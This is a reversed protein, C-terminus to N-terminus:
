FGFVDAGSTEARSPLRSFGNDEGEDINDDPIPMKYPFKMIFHKDEDKDLITPIRHKGRQVSLFHEKNHMFKHIYLEIDMEQDLQKTGEHYGKETIEKVFQDEPMGSRLLGKAETSLQWPSILAIGRASCFNRVRRLLDRKDTGMAGTTICGTTPILALYDLLLVEISYGQAEYEIVKNCISRYTWESPNVRAMKVHFGNVSMRQKVYAAMDKISLGKVDVFSKIEDYKLSQYLFQLNEYLEDEFSIRLLLPKKAPDSTFPKNYLAIQKFLSLTFGTKYKHQLAGIIMTKGRHLGGQLMKNLRTWGFRYVATGSVSDQVTQFVREMNADDGLDVEDILAPDKIDTQISLGELETILDAIYKNVDKIKERDYNFSMSAATVTKGIKEERFHNNLTRRLNLITRKLQDSPYDSDIGKRIAEYYKDDEKTNIRIRQLLDIKDYVHDHPQDCMEIITSKLGLIVERDTNLGIGVESVKVNELVSRVLEISRDGQDPLQSERYLLSISKAILLKNDM